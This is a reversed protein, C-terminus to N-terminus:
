SAKIAKLLWPSLFPKLPIISFKYKAVAVSVLTFSHYEGGGKKKEKEKKPL